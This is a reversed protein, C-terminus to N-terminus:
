AGCRLSCQLFMVSVELLYLLNRLTFVYYTGAGYNEVLGVVWVLSVGEKMVGLMAEM